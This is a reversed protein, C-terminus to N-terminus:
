MTKPPKGCGSAKAKSRVDYVGKAKQTLTLSGSSLNQIQDKFTKCEPRDPIGAAVKGAAFDAGKQLTGVPKAPAPQAPAGAVAIPAAVAPQGAAPAKAGQQKSYEGQAAALGGGAAAGLLLKTKWGAHAPSAIAAALIISAILKTKM